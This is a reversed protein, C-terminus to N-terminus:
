PIVLYRDGVGLVLAIARYWSYIMYEAAMLAWYSM